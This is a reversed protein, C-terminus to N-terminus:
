GFPYASTLIDVLCFDAAVSSSVPPGSKFDTTGYPRALEVGGEAGIMSDLYPATLSSALGGAIRKTFPQECLCYRVALSKGSKILGSVVLSSSFLGQQICDARVKRLNQSFHLPSLHQVLSEYGWPRRNSGAGTTVLFEIRTALSFCERDLKSDATKKIRM